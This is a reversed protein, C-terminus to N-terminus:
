EVICSEHSLRSDKTYEKGCYPCIGTHGIRVTGRRRETPYTANCGEYRKYDQYHIGSSNTYNGMSSAGCLREWTNTELDLMISLEAQMIDRFEKYLDTGGDNSQPYVRGQVLTNNGFHFMNRYIKGSTQVDAGKDVAFTIISSSDLMYSLCGGCYMGSYANDMNRRNRKDITHCSAWSNGFSMTLYDYPNLSIVYTLERKLGSVLDAYVAFLKNYNEAKTVGYKECVRNFARSTKLGEALKLTNDYKVINSIHSADLSTTPINRFRQMISFFNKYDGYSKKTRGCEDFDNNGKQSDTLVKVFDADRLKLVSIKRAGTRMYDTLTKGSEDAYKVILSEAKINSPFNDCFRYVEQQNSGRTLEKNMVMRLNGTYHPSAVFMRILNEKSQFFTHLMMCVGHESNRHDYETLLAVIDDVLKDTDAYQGWATKLDNKNM